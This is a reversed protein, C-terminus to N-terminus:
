VGARRAAFNFGISASRCSYGAAPTFVGNFCANPSALKVPSKATCKHFLVGNEADGVGTNLGVLHHQSQLTCREVITINGNQGCDARYNGNQSVNHGAQMVLAKRPYFGFEIFGAELIAPDEDRHPGAAVSGDCLDHINQGLSASRVDAGTTIRLLLVQRFEARLRHLCPAHQIKGSDLDHQRHSAPSSGTARLTEGAMSMDHAHMGLWFWECEPVKHRANVVSIFRPARCYDHPEGHPYLLDHQLLLTRLARYVRELLASSDLGEGFTTEPLAVQSM